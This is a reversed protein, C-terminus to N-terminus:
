PNKVIGELVHNAIRHDLDCTKGSGAIAAHGGEM